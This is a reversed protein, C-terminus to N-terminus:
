GLAHVQALLQLTYPSYNVQTVPLMSKRSIIYNFYLTLLKSIYFKSERHFIDAIIYGTKYLFSVFTLTIIRELSLIFM